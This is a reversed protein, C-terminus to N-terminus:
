CILNVTKELLFVSISLAPIYIIFSIMRFQAYGDDLYKPAYIILNLLFSLIPIKALYYLILAFVIVLVATVLFFLASGLVVSGVCQLFHVTESFVKKDRNQKPYKTKLTEQRKKDIEDAIQNFEEETIRGEELDIIARGFSSSELLCHKYVTNQTPNMNQNNESM